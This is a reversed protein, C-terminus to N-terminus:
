KESFIQKFECNNLIFYQYFKTILYNANWANIILLNIIRLSIWDSKFTCLAYSDDPAIDRVVTLEILAVVVFLECSNPICNAYADNPAFDCDYGSCCSVSKPGLGCFAGTKGCSTPTQSEGMSVLFLLTILLIYLRMTSRNCLIYFKIYFYRIKLFIKCWYNYKLHFNYL